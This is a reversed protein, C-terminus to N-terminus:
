RRPESFVEPQRGEDPKKMGFEFTTLTLQTSAKAKADMGAEIVDLGRESSMASTTPPCAACLVFAFVKCIVSPLLVCM